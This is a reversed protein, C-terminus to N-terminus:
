RKDGGSRGTSRRVDLAEDEKRGDEEVKGQILEIGSVVVPQVGTYAEDRYDFVNGRTPNGGDM